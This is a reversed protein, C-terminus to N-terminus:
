KEYNIPSSQFKPEQIRFIVPDSLTGHSEGDFTIEPFTHRLFHTHDFYEFTIKEGYTSKSGIRIELYPIGYAERLVARGRIEDGVVAVLRSAQVSDTVITDAIELNAIVVMEYPFENPAVEERHIVSVLCSDQLISDPHIDGESQGVPFAKVYVKVEGKERAYLRRGIMRVVKTEPDSLTWKYTVEVSDPTTATAFYLSDGVLMDAQRHSLRFGTIPYSELKDRIILEGLDELPLCSAMALIMGGVLLYKLKKMIQPREGRGRGLLPLKRADRCNNKNDYRYNNM